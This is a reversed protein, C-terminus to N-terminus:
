PRPAPAPLRLLAQVTSERARDLIAKEDFPTATKSRKLAQATRAMVILHSFGIEGAEMAQVSEPMAAMQEGVAVRDAAQSSTM